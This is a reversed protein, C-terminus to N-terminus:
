INNKKTANPHKESKEIDKMTVLGTLEEGNLVLVKEIRNEYMLKKVVDQFVVPAFTLGNGGFSDRSLTLTTNRSLLDIDGTKIALFREAATLPRFQIKESDGIIAAAFAKCIDEDLDYLFPLSAM